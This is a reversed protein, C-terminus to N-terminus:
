SRTLWGADTKPLSAGYQAAMETPEAEREHQCIRRWMAANGLTM